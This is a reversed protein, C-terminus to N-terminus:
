IEIPNWVVCLVKGQVQEADMIESIYALFLKIVRCPPFKKQVYRSDVLLNTYSILM